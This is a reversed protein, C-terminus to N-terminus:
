PNDSLHTNAEFVLMGRNLYSRIISSNYMKVGELLPSLINDFLLRTKRSLERNEIAFVSVLVNLGEQLIDIVQVNNCYIVLNDDEPLKLAITKVPQVDLLSIGRNTADVINQLLTRSNGLFFYDNLFGYLPCIGEQPSLSWYAYEAAGYETTIMSVDTSKLMDIISQRLPAKDTIALFIMAHPIALPSDKLAPEAIVTIEKGFNDIHEFIIGFNKVISNVIDIDQWNWGLEGAESRFFYELDFQNSWLYLMPNESTLLHKASGQAQATFEQNFLNAQHGQEIEVIIKDNLTRARKQSVYGFGNVGTISPLDISFLPTELLINDMLLPTLAKWISNFHLALLTDPFTCSDKLAILLQNDVFAPQEGDFVDICRILQRENQSVIFIGEIISLSLTRKGDVFRLIRHSGYQRSPINQDARHASRLRQMIKEPSQPKGILVTNERFFHNVNEPPPSPALPSLVAIAMRAGYLDIMLPDNFMANIAVSFQEFQLINDKRVGFVEAVGTFDLSKIRKGLSSEKFKALVDAGNNQEFYLLADGPVFGSLNDNKSPRGLIVVLCIMALLFAALSISSKM